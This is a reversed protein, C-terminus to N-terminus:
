AATPMARLRELLDDAKPVRRHPLLRDHLETFRQRVRRSEVGDALDVARTGTLCAADLDGADAHTTALLATHLARTRVNDTHLNLAEDARQLAQRYLRLDRFCRLATGAYHAPSFYGVWPPGEGHKSRDIAKAAKGLATTCARRDGAVAHACAEATYLRALVTAPARGAGDLAARALRVAETGHGLYTAQTALNALLHAGYLRDDAAKALRLGITFHRQAAGHEGADYSMFALQGVLAAAAGMLDRGVTDTYSGHLMPTVQHHLFTALLARTHDSGGGHRRDLDAFQDAFLRLTAVDSTTVRRLGVHGTDTDAPDYRWAFGTQLAAATAFPATALLDRRRVILRWLQTATDIGASRSTPYTLGLSVDDDGFGLDDVTLTRGIKRALVAAIVIQIASDPRRGRLWWYVSSADYRLMGQARAALNVQRAFAAHAQGYGAEDMLVELDHNTVARPM